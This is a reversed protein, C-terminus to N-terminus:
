LKDVGNQRQFKSTTCKLVDDSVDYNAIDAVLTVDAVSLSDGAVFEAGDLIQELFPFNKTIQQFKEEDVPLDGLVHQKQSFLM